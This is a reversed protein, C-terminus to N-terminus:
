IRCRFSINWQINVLQFKFLRKPPFFFNLWSSPCPLPLLYFYQFKLYFFFILPKIEFNQDPPSLLISISDEFYLHLSLLKLTTPDNIPTQSCALSVLTAWHNLMQRRSLAHDQPRPDLGVDPEKCSLRSRVRGTHRGRERKWERDTDRM